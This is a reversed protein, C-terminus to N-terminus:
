ESKADHDGQTAPPAALPGTLPEFLRGTGQLFRIFFEFLVLRTTQISVVLGELLLIIVNGIVIIIVQVAPLSSAEALVTVALSLGAHALAFAGVRVFSVTNIILQLMSELLHALALGLTRLPKGDGLSLSGALYWFVCLLAPALAYHHEFLLLLSIYIGIVAAEVRLWRALGGRWWAQVGNLVLGLLLVAMGGFMPLFLVPLPQEIPNLWLPAVIHEMGFVSGFVAGFAMSALGCGIFLRMIPWRRRLTVGAALLVLGQGIDGFMYGFMLPVLLVLLLSPDLEDRAPTGLMRAFLEFPQTWWPNNLVMPPSSDIPAPPFHLAARVQSQLLARNLRQGSLDDTWGTVWAFNETVPLDSVRTLFWELQRIDGLADRLRYEERLAQLRMEAETTTAALQQLRQDVQAAAAPADGHLWTPVPLTRGKLLALDKQLQQVDARLGVVLLFLNEASSVHIALLAPPIAALRSGLPLIFIRALINPGTDSFLNFDLQMAPAALLMQRLRQLDARESDIAELREIVPDAAKQWARLRELAHELRADPREAVTAPPAYGDPWYHRYRQQLRNYEEFRDRLDPMVAQRTTRSQSELQISGTHALAEVARVLEERTTLLEFWRAPVPRLSM